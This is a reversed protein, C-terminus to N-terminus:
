PGERAAAAVVAVAAAAAVAAGAAGMMGVAGAGGAAGEVVATACVGAEGAPAECATPFGGAAAPVEDAVEVNLKGIKGLVLLDGAAPGPEGEPLADGASVGLRRRRTPVSREM